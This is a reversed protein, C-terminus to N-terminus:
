NAVNVGTLQAFIQAGCALLTRKIFKPSILDKPNSSVINLEAQVEAYIENFTREQEEESTYLRKIVTKAEDLRGKSILWRPSYPLIFTGLFLLFAPAIQIGIPIQWQANSQISNCGYVVRNRQM